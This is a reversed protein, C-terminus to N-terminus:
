PVTISDSTEVNLTANYTKGSVTVDTVTFTFTGGNKVKDATEFFVTGDAATTGSVTGSYAGSWTGYVTAGSVNAGTDDKIHVTAQGWYNPGANRSGMVISNVYMEVTQQGQPTASVESSTSSENSATDVATVVYYYTTGNTVTNDTYDSSSVGQAVAAYGSGSTTSRYVTYSDLDSESNDAWDLDVSGDGATAGLGTPAAPATTDAPTASAESSTDSENDSTDVATVVYYYTTDNTVTNDTYDSTSVGTAISAYGSGSTTSRYVTYSALDQESNDAWDLSVSGDGATAGLGTPAAPATTDGTNFTVTLSPHYSATVHEKTAFANWGTSSQTTTDIHFTAASNTNMSQTLLTTVDINYAQEVTLNNSSFTVENGSGVPSNNWTIGTEDWLDGSDDTMRVRITRSTQVSTPTLTLTASQVDGSGQNSYDFRVFSERTYGSNFDYKVGMISDLGFNDGAYGGDRIYSDASVLPLVSLTAEGGSTNEKSRFSMNGDNINRTILLTVENNTDAKLFNLLDAGEISFETGAAPAGGSWSFTGVQTTDTDEAFDPSLPANAGTIGSETWDTGLNDGPRGDIIGWVTITGSSVDASNVTLTLKARAGLEKGTLDFHIWGTRTYTSGAGASSRKVVVATSGGYNNSNTGEVYTDADTALSWTPTVEIQMMALGTATQGTSDAIVYHFYDMGETDDPATYSIEDRGNPGTGTSISVTGGRESTSEVSLISLTDANADFDNALVDITISSQTEVGDTVIDLAAYPPVDVGTYAGGISYLKTGINGDRHALHDRVSTGCFRAIGNGCMITNGEPSNGDWDGAGFNHGTEHRGAGMYWGTSKVQSVNYTGPSYAVGGGINPSALMAKFCYAMADSHNNSWENAFPSLLATGSIGQYPCHTQSSRIVVRGICNLMMNDRLQIAKWACMNKEVQEMTTALSSGYITSFADYDVDFGMEYKYVTSGAQGPTVTSASPWAYTPSPVSKNTVSSGLTSWKEGRDLYMLAWLDGDTQLYGVVLADDLESVYGVYTRVEDPTYSDYTGSSNQVLVNFNPGRLSEKFMNLTYSNTGDSVTQTITDPVVALSSGTVFLM